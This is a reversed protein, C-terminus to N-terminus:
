NWDSGDWTYTEGDYTGACKTGDFTGMKSSDYNAGYANKVATEFSSQGPCNSPTNTNTNTNTNTDTGSALITKNQGGITIIFKEATGTQPNAAVYKVATIFENPAEDQNRNLCSYGLGAFKNKVDSDLDSWGTVTEFCEDLEGGLVVDKNNEYAGKVFSAFVGYYIAALVGAALTGRVGYKVTKPNKQLFRELATGQKKLSKNEKKLMQSKLETQAKETLEDLTIKGSLLDNLHGDIKALVQKQYRNPIIGKIWNLDKYDQEGKIWKKVSELDSKANELEQKQLRLKENEIELPDKPKTAGTDITPKSKNAGVSEISKKQEAFQKRLQILSDPTPVGKSSGAVIKDDLLKIVDDIDDSLGPTSLDMDSIARLVDYVDPSFLKSAEINKISIEAAEKAMAAVKSEISSMIKPNKRIYGLIAEESVDDISKVGAEAAAKKVLDESNKVGIATFEDALSNLNLDDATKGVINDIYSDTYGLSKLIMRTRADIVGETLLSLGMIERMRNLESLIQENLLKSM